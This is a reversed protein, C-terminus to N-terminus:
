ASPPDRLLRRPPFASSTRSDNFSIAMINVAPMTKSPNKLDISAKQTFAAASKSQLRGGRNRCGM